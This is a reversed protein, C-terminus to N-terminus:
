IEYEPSYPANTTVKHCIDFFTNIPLNSKLKNIKWTCLVVNDKTYGKLSDIRDISFFETTGSQLELDEGTYFCKGEQKEFLSQIFEEDINMEWGKQECRTKACSLKDKIPSVTYYKTIAYLIRKVYVSRDEAKILRKISKMIQTGSRQLQKRLEKLDSEKNLLHLLLNDDVKTWPKSKKNQINEKRRIHKITDVALGTEKSTVIDPKGELYFEKIIDLQENTYLLRKAKSKLNLIKCRKRIVDPDCNFKLAIEPIPLKEDILDILKNDNERTWELINYRVCINLKDCRNKVRRIGMNLIKSIKKYSFKKNVKLDLLREDEEKTWYKVGKEYKGIEQLKRVITEHARNFKKMLDKMSAGEDVMKIFEADEEPKWNSKRKKYKM